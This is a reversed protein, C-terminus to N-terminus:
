SVAEELVRADSNETTTEDPTPQPESSTRRIFSEATEDVGAIEASTPEHRAYKVLDCAELFPAIASQFMADLRYDGRLSSLFEETTMEPARLGFQREIYERVIRSLEFYFVKVQGSRVLNRKRLAALQQLAWEGPPVMRAKALRAPRRKLLRAFTWLLGVAIFAIGAVALWRNWESIPLATPDDVVAPRSTPNLDATAVTAVTLPIPETEIRTPEADEGAAAIEVTFAPIEVDGPDLPRLQYTRQHVVPANADKKDVPTAAPEDLVRVYFADFTKSLDPWTVEGDAGELALRMDVPQGVEVSSKDLTVTLHTDGVDFTRSAAAEEQPKRSCGALAIPLMAFMLYRRM